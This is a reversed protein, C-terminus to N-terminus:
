HLWTMEYGSLHNNVGELAEREAALFSNLLSSFDLSFIFIKGVEKKPCLRFWMSKISLSWSAAFWIWYPPGSTNSLEQVM